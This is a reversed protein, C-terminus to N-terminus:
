IEQMPSVPLLVHNPAPHPTGLVLIGPVPAAYIQVLTNKTCQIEEYTERFVPDRVTAIYSPAHISAFDISNLANNQVFDQGVFASWEGPNYQLYEPTSGGFFGESGVTVLHNPDMTKLFQSM